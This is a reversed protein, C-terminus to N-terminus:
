ESRLSSHCSEETRLGGGWEYREPEGLGTGKGLYSMLRQGTADPNAAKKNIASGVSADACLAGGEVVRSEPALAGTSREAALGPRSGLWGM